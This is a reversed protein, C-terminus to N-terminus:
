SDTLPPRIATYNAVVEKASLPVTISMTPGIVNTAISNSAAKRGRCLIIPAVMNNWVTLASAKM